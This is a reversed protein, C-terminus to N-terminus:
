QYQKAIGAWTQGTNVLLQAFAAREAEVRKADIADASVLSAGADVHSTAQARGYEYGTRVDVFVASATTAVTAPGSVKAGVDVPSAPAVARGQVEFATDFTFVLLVDAQMKAASGRLDDLSDLQAPLWALNLAEATDVSPWKAIQQLSADVLPDTAAIVTYRGTGIGELARARYPSAQVRVVALSAPLQPAPQRSSGETVGARNLQELPAPGGPTVYGACGACALALLILALNRM